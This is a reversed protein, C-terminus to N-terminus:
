RASKPPKRGSTGAAKESAGAAEELPPILARVAGAAAGALVKAATKSVRKTVKGSGIAGRRRTRGKGRAPKKVSRKRAAPKRTRKKKAPM